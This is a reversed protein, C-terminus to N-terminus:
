IVVAPRLCTPGLELSAQSLHADAKLTIPYSIGGLVFEVMYNGPILGIVLFGNAKKVLFGSDDGLWIDTTPTDAQITLQFYTKNPM